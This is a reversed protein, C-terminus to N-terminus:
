PVTPPGVPLTGAWPRAQELQAALALLTAEAGFAGTFQVGVPLGTRNRHLPVSMAPQGSLNALPTEHAFALADRLQEEPTGRGFRGLPPAPESTVASLLVDYRQHFGALARAARQMRSVTLLYSAASLRRGREYLWWTLEELLEPRPERGGAAAGQGTVASSVGAAWVDLFADALEAMGVEPADEVVEHGLEACLRAAERVAEACDPHPETSGARLTFAIRLPRPPADLAGTFPGEAPPAWYPDGLDPGAILDLAAASDRVTRSVVHECALGNMLDGVDPGLPTRARTPKLGFVGCCSAPIRISGGADNAHAFPVMGAAVAAAAGGSSGGASRTLDWPNRTPGFRVPETTPLVGFEATASKGLVVLGGNRFRRALTSDRAPTYGDLFASGANAPVGACGPGLDKLLFPVGAFVAGPTGAAREANELAQEYCTISVANVTSRLQEIRNIAAETLERAGIEGKRLLAAQDHADLASLADLTGELDTM